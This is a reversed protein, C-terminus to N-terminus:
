RSGFITFNDFQVITNYNKQYFMIARQFEKEIILNQCTGLIFECGSDRFFLPRNLDVIVFVKKIDNRLIQSNCIQRYQVSFNSINKFDNSCLYDRGPFLDLNKAGIIAGFNLNNQIVIGSKEVDFVTSRILSKIQMAREFDFLTEKSMEWVKESWFLRSLFLPGLAVCAAFSVLLCTFNILINFRKIQDQKYQSNLFHNCVNTIKNLGLWSSFLIPAILGATYHNYGSYTEPRTSLLCMALPPIAVLLATPAFIALFSFSGFIILLFKLRGFDSLLVAAVEPFNTISNVFIEFIDSGLWSYANPLPVAGDNVLTGNVGLIFNFCVWFYLIGFASILIAPLVSERLAGRNCLFQHAIIYIGCFFTQLAFPEKILCLIVALFGAKNIENARVSIFFFLLIPIALHDFHFDFLGNMILPTYIIYCWPIIRGLHVFALWVSISLAFAQLSLIIYPGFVPGCVLYVFSYPFLLIQVHSQFARIPEQYIYKFNNLYFGFDAVNSALVFYKLSSHGCVILFFVLALLFAIQRESRQNFVKM